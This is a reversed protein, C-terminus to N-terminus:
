RGNDPILVIFKRSDASKVPDSEADTRIAKTNLIYITVTALKSTLIDFGTGPLLTTAPVGDVVPLGFAATYVADSPPAGNAHGLNRGQYDFYSPATSYPPTSVLAALKSFDTQQAETTLQQAIQATVGTDIAQRSINLGLPLLGIIPVFAFSIIGIAVAVEVLTFAMRAKLAAKRTTIKSPPYHTKM